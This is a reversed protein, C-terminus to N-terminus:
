HAPDNSRQWVGAVLAVSGNPNRLASGADTLAIWIDPRDRHALRFRIPRPATDVELAAAMWHDYLHTRDSPHVLALVQDFTRLSDGSYGLFQDIDGGWQLTSRHPDACYTVMGSGALALELHTRWQHAQDLAQARADHLSHVILVLIATIGLYLQAQLLAVREEIDASAFPGEGQATKGLSILALVLVALAAIVIAHLLHFGDLSIRMWRVVADAVAPAIGALIGLVISLPIDRGGIHSLVVQTLAFAIALRVQSTPQSLLMAALSVGAPLWVHPAPASPVNFHWSLAGAAIYLVVWLLTHAMPLYKRADIMLKGNSAVAARESPRMGYRIHSGSRPTFSM